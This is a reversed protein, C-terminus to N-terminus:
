SIKAKKMLSQIEKGLSEQKLRDTIEAKYSEYSGVPLERVGEVLIVHYGADTKVPESTYAGASLKRVADAFPAPFGDTKGDVKIWGLEGGEDRSGLDKSEAALKDFKTGGALKSIVAKADAESDLQIHRVRYETGRKTDAIHKYEARLAADTLAHKKEFDNVFLQALLGQTNFAIRADIQEKPAKDFQKQVAELMERLQAQYAPVKDLKLAQAQQAMVERQILQGKVYTRFEAEQPKGQLGQDAVLVDLMVKSIPKGNVTALAEPAANAALAFVTITACLVNRAYVTLRSKM